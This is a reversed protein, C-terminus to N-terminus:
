EQARDVRLHGPQRHLGEHQMRLAVLARGPDVDPVVSCAARRAPRRAAPRRRRTCARIPATSWSTPPSQVTGPRSASRAPRTSPCRASSGAPSRRPRTQPSGPLLVLFEDGGLRALYDGQRLAGNWAHACRQLLRDGEAHGHTNNIHKLRDLDIALVSLPEDCAAARRLARELRDDWARRNPLGTLQDHTATAQLEALLGERERQLRLRREARCASSSASASSPSAHARRLRRCARAARGPGDAWGVTCLMAGAAAILGGRLGRESALLSVPIVYLFGVAEIPNSVALRLLTILSSCCRACRLYDTRESRPPRLVSALGDSTTEARRAPPRSPTRVSPRAARVGATHTVRSRRARRRGLIHGHGRQGAGRGSAGGRLRRGM